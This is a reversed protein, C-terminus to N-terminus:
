VRFPSLNPTAWITSVRTARSGRHRCRPKAPSRPRRPPSLWPPVGGGAPWRPTTPVTPVVGKGVTTSGSATIGSNGSRIVNVQSPGAHEVQNGAPNASDSDAGREFDCRGVASVNPTRQILEVPKDFGEASPTQFSLRPTGCPSVEANRRLDRPDNDAVMCTMCLRPIARVGSPSRGATALPSM